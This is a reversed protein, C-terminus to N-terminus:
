ARKGVLWVLVQETFFDFCFCPFLFLAEDILDGLDGHAVCRRHESLVVDFFDLLVTVVGTRLERARRRRRKEGCL